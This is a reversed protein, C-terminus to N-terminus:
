QFHHKEAPACFYDNNHRRVEWSGFQDEVEAFDWGAHGNCSRIRYCLWHGAQDWREDDHREKKAEVCFREPPLQITCSRGHDFQTEVFIHKRQAHDDVKITWCRLHDYTHDFDQAAVPLLAVVFSGGVLLLTALLCFQVRIKM